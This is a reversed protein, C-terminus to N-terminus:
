TRDTCRHHEATAVPTPLQQGLRAWGDAALGSAIAHGIRKAAGTIVATGKVHDPMAPFHPM